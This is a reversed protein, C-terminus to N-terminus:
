KKFLIRTALSGSRSLEILAKITEGRNYYIVGLLLHSYQNEKIKLTNLLIEEAKAYEKIEIYAAALYNKIWVNDPELELIREFYKISEKYKSNFSASFAAYNLLLIDDEKEDLQQIYPNLAKNFDKLPIVNNMKNFYDYAEEIKGLNALSISYNFNAIIDEPYNELIQSSKQLLEKWDVYEVAQLLQPNILLIFLLTIMYTNIIRKIVKM